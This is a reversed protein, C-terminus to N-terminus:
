TLRSGAKIAYGRLFEAAEQPGKGARQLRLLKLAAEGCAVSIADDFVTGAAAGHAPQDTAEAALVKIKNDDHEFWVGPRPNLARIQRELEAAPRNWDLRGEVKRLKSAYSVGDEAQPAPTLTGSVAGELADLMLGAGLGSLADHLTEATTTPSIPITGYLLVPGTDLGADMQMISVGTEEDGAMIAREIPAAGRWRPLLSAHVNFCGLGPAELVAKPLLLGYAVVVAADAKLACFAAQEDEGKLSVPTHVPLGKELAFAHVASPKQKHGRGAPRPPQSYVAAIDHGADLLAALAPVSFEPSGMFILRLPSM